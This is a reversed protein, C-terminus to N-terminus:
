RPRGKLNRPLLGRQGATMLKALLADDLPENALLAELLLPLNVGALVKIRPQHHALSLAVNYPTGGYLDCLILVEGSAAEILADLKESYTEPTVGGALPAVLVHDTSGVILRAASLLGGGFDGHGAMLITFNQKTM